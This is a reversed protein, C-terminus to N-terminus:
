DLDTPPALELFNVGNKVAKDYDPMIYRPRYPAEGEFLNCIAGTAFYKQAAATKPIVSLTDEAAHALANVKQEYTLQQSKVIDLIYNAM